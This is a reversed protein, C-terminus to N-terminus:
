AGRLLHHYLAPLSIAIRPQLTFFILLALGGAGTVWPSRRRGMATKGLADVREHLTRRASNRRWATLLGLAVAPRRQALASVEVLGSAVAVPDQLLAAAYEDCAREQEEVLRNYWLWAFPNWILLDKLITALWRGLYDLRRAHAVEHALIGRIERLPLGEALEASLVVLPPRLGLTFAPCPAQRLLILRPRPLLAFRGYARCVIEGFASFVAPSEEPGVQASEQLRRSFPALRSWRYVLLGIGLVALIILVREASDSKMLLAASIRSDFPPGDPALNPLQLGLYGLGKGNNDLCSLGEGRWLELAAKTFAAYLFLVRTAPRRMWGSGFFLALILFVMGSSFFAPLLHRGAVSLLFQWAAM